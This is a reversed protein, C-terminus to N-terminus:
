TNRKVFVKDFVDALKGAMAKATYPTITQSQTLPQYHWPHLLVRELRRSIEKVKEAPPRRLSFTIVQESRTERLIRVVSSAEHSIALLPKRALLYPFIKSATYHPAESGLLLLAHSDLMIQIADLYPVRGPHEQVLHDVGYEKAIPLVQYKEEANPDYTTGVFHMRLRTFNESSRQLGLQVAQFVAKLAPEMDPGARGIYSLHVLGDTTNFLNNPRPTRRVRDFDSSEGGYPIGTVDSEELWSYNSLVEHVYAKDVAVLHSVHKLAFPEAVRSLAHALRRKPQRDSKPRDRWDYTVWPDIYDIVYPVKFAEYVLRGLVMPFFPPVPIFVLDVQKEKCLKSLAQWHHWVSRIGVDGIGIRRTLKSSFAPTRVVNLSSPLLQENEPDVSWEYYKPDITIITPQWGYEVLHNAFLRIRLAPPYSSPCFDAGIIAVRTM